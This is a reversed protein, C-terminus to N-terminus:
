DRVARVIEEADETGALGDFDGRLAKLAFREESIERATRVGLRRIVPLPPCWGQLAHQLMFTPVGLALWAWRKHVQATLLAGLSSFLAFNTQLLRETDWEKDLEQLRQTIAESGQERYFELREHTLQDIRRNVSPDTHDEVRTASSTFM